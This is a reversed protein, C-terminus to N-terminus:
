GAPGGLDIVDTDPHAAAWHRPVQSVVRAGRTRAALAAHAMGLSTEDKATLHVTAVSEANDRTLDDTVVVGFDLLLLARDVEGPTELRTLAETMATMPIIIAQGAMDLEHVAQLARVTDRGFDTIISPDLVYGGIM